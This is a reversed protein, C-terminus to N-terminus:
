QDEYTHTELGRGIQEGVRAEEAAVQKQKMVLTAIESTLEEVEDELAMYIAVTIEQDSVGKTRSLQRKSATRHQLTPIKNLVEANCIVAYFYIIQALGCTWAKFCTEKGGSAETYKPGFFSRASVRCWPM